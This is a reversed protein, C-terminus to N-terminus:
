GGINRRFDDREKEGGCNIYPATNICSNICLALICIFYSTFHLFPLNPPILSATTQSIPFLPLLSTRSKLACCGCGTDTDWVAAREVVVDGLYKEGILKLYRSGSCILPCNSDTM